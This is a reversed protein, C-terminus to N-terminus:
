DGDRDGLRHRGPLQRRPQFGQLAADVVPDPRSLRRRVLRARLRRFSLLGGLDGGNDRRDRCLLDLRWLGFGFLIGAFYAVAAIAAAVLGLSLPYTWGLSAGILTALFIGAGICMTGAIRAPIARPPQGPAPSLISNGDCSGVLFLGGWVFALGFLIM